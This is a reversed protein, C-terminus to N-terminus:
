QNPQAISGPVVRLIGLIYGEGLRNLEETSVGVCVMEMALSHERKDRRAAGEKERKDREQSARRKIESPLHQKCWGHGDEQYKAKRSCQSYHTWMMRDSVEAWCYEANKDM